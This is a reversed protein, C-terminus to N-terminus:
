ESGEGQDHKGLVLRALCGQRVLLGVAQHVELSRM